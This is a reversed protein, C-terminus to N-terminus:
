VRLRIDNTRWNKSGDWEYESWEMRDVIFIQRSADTNRNVYWPLLLKGVFITKREIAIKVRNSYRKVTENALDYTKM